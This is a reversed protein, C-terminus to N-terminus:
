FTFVVGLLPGQMSMDYKFYDAGKGDEYDNDLYRYAFAVGFGPKVQWRLTGVAQWAFDSGVGFGGIDGRLSVSWQESFPRVYYLGIVPDLWDATDKASRKGGGPLTLKVTTELDVYRLGVFGHLHDTLAYGFDGELVLQDVDVDAKVYGLPGRGDGGLAAYVVDFLVSYRDRSGRYTGMAAFELADLIDGFSADVDMSVDGVATTGELATGWLYPAVEHTWDAARLPASALLAVVLAM